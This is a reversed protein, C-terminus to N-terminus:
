RRGFRRIPLTFSGSVACNALRRVSSGRSACGERWSISFSIAMLQGTRAQRNTDRIYYGILWNRVTLSLNVAKTARELFARHTEEIVAVLQEFSDTTVPGRRETVYPFRPEGICADASLHVVPYNQSYTQTSVEMRESEGMSAPDM